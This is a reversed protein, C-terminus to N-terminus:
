NWILQYPELINEMEEMTMSFDWYTGMYDDAYIDPPNADSITYAIHGGNPFEIGVNIIYNMDTFTMQTGDNIKYGDATALVIAKAIEEKSTSSHAETIYLKTKMNTEKGNFKFDSTNM